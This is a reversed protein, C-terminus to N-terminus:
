PRSAPIGLSSRAHILSPTAIEDVVRIGGGAPGHWVGGGFTTIYIMNDNHTDPIVRQGWKFNFGPIRQWSTGADESKWASSEFGSAFIRNSLREDVSIDFIHQDTTLVHNWTRGRNTSLYIGGGKQGTSTFRGWAALYLRDPNKPDTAMGNPANVGDPLAIRNWHEAADSSFYVAGDDDTGPVAEEKRRVLIAYLGGSSDRVLRWVLPEREVIGSNKLKWTKGGNVSKYVGKGCAAVYLTRTASPSAPDLLIHTPATLEMGDNSKLWTIGGNESIMVGGVFTSTLKRAFVKTRPLDHTGSMVAWARGRVAPDFVMWYTTNLWAHPVGETSPVWSAGGDESRFLGIDTYSIFIRKFDFPDFHVGHANTGEMGIGSFGAGSLRHTYTARWHEGGDDSRLVRGADTSYVTMPNSPAVGLAIPAGAYGSGFYEGIWDDGFAKHEHGTEKREVKWTVGGDETRAVGLFSTVDNDSGETLNRFSVYAIEPHDLSAAISRVEASGPFFSKQWNNGLDSSTFLNGSALLYLTASHKRSFGVAVDSFETVGTPTHVEVWKGSVRAAISAKGIAYINPMTRDPAPDLFLRHTGTPLPIQGKWTKGFDRSTSFWASQQKGFAAFLTKSDRPLIALALMPPWDAKTVLKEGAHDGHMEIGLVEHPPPYVLSWTVGGDKSRWLGISNAYLVKADNPDFAFFHIRGRLNFTRWSKGGNSSYYGDTMDCAVLVRDPDIPSVTPEFFSGGGGPGIFPNSSAFELTSGLLFPLTLFTALRRIL